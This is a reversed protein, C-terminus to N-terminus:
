LLKSLRSLINPRTSRAAGDGDSTLLELNEAPFGSYQKLAAALSRADDDASKLGIVSPDTYTNVGIVLAFRKTPTPWQPGADTRGKPGSNGVSIPTAGPKQCSTEGLLLAALALILLRRLWSM